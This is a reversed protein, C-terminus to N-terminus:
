EKEYYLRSNQIYIGKQSQPIKQGWLNYKGTSLTPVYPNKVSIDIDEIVTLDKQWAYPEDSINIWNFQEDSINLYVGPFKEKLSNLNEIVYTYASYYDKGDIEYIFELLQDNNFYIENYPIVYFLWQGGMVDALSSLGGANLYCFSTSGNVGLEKVEDSLIIKEDFYTPSSFPFSKTVYGSRFDDLCLAFIKYGLAYEDKKYQLSIAGYADNVYRSGEPQYKFSPSYIGVCLECIPKQYKSGDYYDKKGPISAFILEMDYETTSINDTKDSHSYMYVKSLGLETWTRKKNSENDSSIKTGDPAYVSSPGGQSESYYYTKMSKGCFAQNGTQPTGDSSYFFSWTNGNDKSELFAYENYPKIWFTDIPTNNYNDWEATRDSTQIQSIQSVPDYDIVYWDRYYTKDSESSSTRGIFHSYSHVKFTFKAGKAYPNQAFISLPFCFFTILLLLLVKKM